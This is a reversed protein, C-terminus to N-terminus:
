KYLDLYDKLYVKYEMVEMKSWLIDIRLDFVMEEEYYDVMIDGFFLGIVM